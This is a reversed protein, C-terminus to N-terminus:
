RWRRLALVSVGLLSVWTMSAAGGGTSSSATSSAPQKGSGGDM